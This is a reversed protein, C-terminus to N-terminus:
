PNPLLVAEAEPFSTQQQLQSVKQFEMGNPFVLPVRTKRSETSLLCAVIGHPNLLANAKALLNTATLTAETLSNSFTVFDNGLETFQFATRAEERVRKVIPALQTRMAAHLFYWTSLPVQMQQFLPIVDERRCNLLGSSSIVISNQCSPSQTAELAQQAKALEQQRYQEDNRQARRRRYAETEVVLGEAAVTASQIDSSGSDNLARAMCESATSFPVDLKCATQHITLALATITERDGNPFTSTALGCCERAEKWIMGYNKCLHKLIEPNM